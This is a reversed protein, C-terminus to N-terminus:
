LIRGVIVGLALAAALYALRRRRSPPRADAHRLWGRMLFAIALAALAIGTLIWPVPYSERINGLVEQTYLLYDVAIFNFRTAFELWFTAEAVAGFLLVFLVFALWTFRLVRHTRSARWSNPLVAEYIWVPVLLATLVVLDFWLGELLVVPWAALPVADRGTWLALGIRTLTYVALTILTFLLPISPGFRPRPNQANM